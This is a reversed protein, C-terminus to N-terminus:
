LQKKLPELIKQYSELSLNDIINGIEKRDWLQLKLGKTQDYKNFYSKADPTFGSYSAFVAETSGGAFATGILNQIDPRGVKTGTKFYKAQVFLKRENDSDSQTALVDVGADAGKSTLRADWGDAELLNKLIIEFWKWDINDLLYYGKLRLKGEEIFRHQEPVERYIRREWEDNLRKIEDNRRKEEDAEIKAERRKRDKEWLIRKQEHYVALAKDYQVANKVFSLRMTLPRTAEYFIRWFIAGVFIGPFVCVITLIIFLVWFDNSYPYKYFQPGWLFWSIAYVPIVIGPIMFLIFSLRGAGFLFSPVDANDIVLKAKNYKKETLGFDSYEPRPIETM